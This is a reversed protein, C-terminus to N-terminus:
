SGFATTLFRQLAAACAEVDTPAAVRATKRARLTKTHTAFIPKLAEDISEVHIGENSAGRHRAVMLRAEFDDALGTVIWRGDDLESIVLLDFSGESAMVAVFTEPLGAYLRCAREVTGHLSQEMWELDAKPTLSMKGLRTDLRALADALPLADLDAVEPLVDSLILTLFGPDFYTKGALDTATFEGHKPRPPSPPHAQPDLVEVTAPIWMDHHENEIRTKATERRCFLAEAGNWEGMASFAAYGYEDLPVGTPPPLRGADTWSTGFASILTVGAAPVHTRLYSGPTLRMKAAGASDLNVIFTDWYDDFWVMAEARNGDITYRGVWSTDRRPEFPLLDDAADAASGGTTLVVVERPGRWALRERFLAEHDIRYLTVRYDGRPVKVLGGKDTPEEPGVRCSDNAEVCLRGSPLRLFARQPELWRSVSLERETLPDGVHVAIELEDDQRLGYGVILGSKTLAQFSGGTSASRFDMAGSERIADANADDYLWVELGSNFLKLLTGGDRVSPTGAARTKARAKPKAATRSVKSRKKAATTSPKSRTRAVTTSPKGGKKAAMKSPKGGKRAATKSPKGGKTAATRSPKGRKRRKPTAM